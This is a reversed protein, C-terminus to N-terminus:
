LATVAIVRMLSNRFLLNPTYEPVIEQLKRRIATADFRDAAENLEKLQADLLVSREHQSPLVDAQGDNRLVM